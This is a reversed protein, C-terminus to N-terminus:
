FNLNMLDIGVQIGNKNPLIAQDNFIPALYKKIVLSVGGYSVSFQTRFFFFQFPQWLFIVSKNLTYDQLM